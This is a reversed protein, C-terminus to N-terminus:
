NTFKGDSVLCYILFSFINVLPLLLLAFALKVSQRRHFFWAGLIAIICVAPFTFMTWFLIYNSFKDESGPADFIMISVFAPVQGFFVAIGWLFTGLTLVTKSLDRPMHLGQDLRAPM